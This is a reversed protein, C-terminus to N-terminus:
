IASRGPPDADAHEVAELAIRRAQDLDGAFFLAQSLSALAGVALVDPGARAATVALRGRDVARGVDGGPIMAARGTEVAAELYPSRLEPREVRARDALALLRQTELEPRGALLSAQAGAAPLIPEDVLAEPSFWSIWGLYQEIRGSWIFEMHHEALLDAVMTADPAAAASEIADEVLRTAAGPRRGAACSWRRSPDSSWNCCKASCTTTATGSGVRTSRSWFCTRGTSGPSFAAPTRAALYPMASTPTFRGLVSTRLFFERTERDLATLVEASLYDGVQRASGAFERVRRDPDDLERLWLAALYLGAPWGETRETLLAVSETSLEVGEGSMLERTEEVTFALDRARFEALARRARLRALGISPDSRTTAVVRANAPLREIGHAISALSSESKVTHLDDLVITVPREFAVLSNMVEDVAHEM